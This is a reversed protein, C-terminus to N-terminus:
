EDSGKLMELDKAFEALTAEFPPPSSRAKQRLRALAGTVFGYPPEAEGTFTPASRLLLGRWKEDTNM